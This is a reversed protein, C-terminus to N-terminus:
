LNKSMTVYPNQVQMSELGPIYDNFRSPSLSKCKEDENAQQGDCQLSYRDFECYEMPVQHKIM